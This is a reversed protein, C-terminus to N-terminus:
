KGTAKASDGKGESSGPEKIAHRLGERYHEMAKGQQGRSECIMGLYYHVQEPNPNLYMAENLLAEAEDMKGRRFLIVGRLQKARKHDSQAALVKELLADAGDLDGTVVKLDALDIMVERNEPDQEAAKALEAAAAELKGKERMSRALARHASALSKPSSRDSPQAALRQKLEEDSLTGLAHRIYADLTRKYDGSHLAITHALKGEKDNVITTPFAILGLKGYFGHDPDFALTAGIKREARFKEFYPKQVVDTTVHILKVGEVGLGQVVENSDMAALESRRQEASVCVFVVVTGKMLASDIVTADLTPLKYAPVPEGRKVNRLDRAGAETVCATMMWVAMLVSLIVRKAFMPSEKKVREVKTWDM